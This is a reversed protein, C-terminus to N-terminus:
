LGNIFEMAHMAARAGDACSTIVQFLDTDRVDGAAFLGTFSTMLNDDTKLYGEKTKDVEIALMDTIPKWGFAMFAGDVAIDKEKGQETSVVLAEVFDRGRFGIVEMNLMLSINEKQDILKRHAVDAMFEIDPCVLLVKDAIKSLSLAHQGAPNGNGIVALTAHKDRYLPGDCNSCFHIGNMNGNPVDLRVPERGTAILAAKASYEHKNADAGSFLGNYSNLKELRAMSFFAGEKQAQQFAIVGFQTGPIGDIFGPYNLLNNIMYVNGGPTDGFVAVRLGLRSGYIAATLGAPGTGLVMLDYLKENM